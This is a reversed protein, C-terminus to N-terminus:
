DEPRANYKKEKLKKKQKALYQKYSLPVSQKRGESEMYQGYQRLWDRDDSM